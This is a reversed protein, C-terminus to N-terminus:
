ASGIGAEEFGPEELSGTGLHPSGWVADETDERGYVVEEKNNTEPKELLAQATWEKLQSTYKEMGSAKDAGWTLLVHKRDGKKSERELPDCRLRYEMALDFIDKEIIMVNLMIRELRDRGRVFGLYLEGALNAVRKADIEDSRSGERIGYEAKFERVADLWEDKGVGSVIARRFPKREPLPTLSAKQAEIGMCRRCEPLREARNQCILKTDEPHCLWHDFTQCYTKM